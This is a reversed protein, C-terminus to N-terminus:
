FALSVDFLYGLKVDLVVLFIVVFIGWCIGVCKFVANTLVAGPLCLSPPWPILM